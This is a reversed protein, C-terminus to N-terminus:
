LTSVLPRSFPKTLVAIFSCAMPKGQRRCIGDEGEPRRATGISAWIDSISPMAGGGYAKDTLFRALCTSSLIFCLSVFCPSV